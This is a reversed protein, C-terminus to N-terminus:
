LIYSHGGPYRNFVVKELTDQKGPQVAIKVPIQQRVVQESQQKKGKQDHEVLQYPQGLHVKLVIKGEVLDQQEEEVLQRHNNRERNWERDQGAIEQGHGPQGLVTFEGSHLGATNGHGPYYKRPYQETDKNAEERKIELICHLYASIVIEDAEIGLEQGLLRSDGELLLGAQGHADVLYGKFFQDVFLAVFDQAIDVHHIGPASLDDLSFFGAEDGIGLVRFVVDHFELVASEGFHQFGFVLGAPLLLMEKNGGKVVQGEIDIDVQGLVVVALGGVGHILGLEPGLDGPEGAGGHGLEFLLVGQAIM